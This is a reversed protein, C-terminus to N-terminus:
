NINEFEFLNDNEDSIFIKNNKIFINKINKDTKYKITKEKTDPNYYLLTTKGIDLWLNKIIRKQDIKIIWIYWEKFYIFDNFFNFYNLSNDFISYIFSWKSSVFILKNNISKKVYNIDINLNIKNLYNNLYNFYFKNKWVEIYLDNESGKLLEVRLYKTYVLDFNWIKKENFFLDLKNNKKFFYAKKNNKLYFTKYNKKNQKLREIKEINTISKEGEKKILKIEKKLTIQENKKQTEIRIKEKEDFKIYIYILWIFWIIILIWLVRNSM